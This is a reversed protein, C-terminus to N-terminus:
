EAPRLGSQVSSDVRSKESTVAVCALGWGRCYAQTTTARCTVTIHLHDQISYIYLIIIHMYTHLGKVCM